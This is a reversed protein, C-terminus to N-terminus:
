RYFGENSQGKVTQIFQEHSGKILENVLLFEDNVFNM